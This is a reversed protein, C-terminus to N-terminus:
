QPLSATIAKRISLPVCAPQTQGPLVRAFRSFHKALLTPIIGEEERAFKRLAEPLTSLLHSQLHCSLAKLSSHGVTRDPSYVAFPKCASQGTWISPAVMKPLHCNGFIGKSISSTKQLHFVFQFGFCDQCGGIRTIDPEDNVFFIQQRFLMRLDADHM